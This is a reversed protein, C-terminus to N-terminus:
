FPLEDEEQKKDEKKEEEGQKNVRKKLESFKEYVWDEVPTFDWKGARKEIPAPDGTIWEVKEGDVTQLAFSTYVKGNVPKSGYISLTVKKDTPCNYLVKIANRGPDASVPFNVVNFEGDDDRFSVGFTEGFNNNYFVTTLVGVIQKEKKHYRTGHNATEVKEFGEKPEKSTQYFVNERGNINYYNAM